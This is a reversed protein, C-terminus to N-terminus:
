QGEPKPSPKATWEDLADLLKVFKAVEFNDLRITEQPPPTKDLDAILKVSRREDVASTDAALGEQSLYKVLKARMDRSSSLENKLKAIRRDPPDAKVPPDPTTRAPPDANAQVPGPAARGGLPVFTQGAFVGFFFAVLLAFALMAASRKPRPGAKTAQFWAQHYRAEGNPMLKVSVGVYERSPRITEVWRYYEAPGKPDPQGLADLLTLARRRWEEAYLGEASTVQYGKGPEREIVFCATPSLNTPQNGRV